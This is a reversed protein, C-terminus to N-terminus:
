YARYTIKARECTQLSAPGPMTSFRWGRADHLLARDFDAFSSSEALAIKTVKGSTSVCLDLQATATEGLTGRVERGIRDVSPLTPAIASPFATVTDAHRAIDVHVRARPAHDTDALQTRGVTACASLAIALVALKNM